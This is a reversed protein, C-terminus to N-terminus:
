RGPQLRGRRVVQDPAFELVGTESAIVLLGDRTVQFRGPRLGNRDLLAVLETGDTAIMAAPGDWPEMVLSHYELFERLGPALSPELEWAEPVMMALAHPLSRGSMVLLELVEDFSASDSGGATCIPRLQTLDGLADSSLQAERARMWNRN